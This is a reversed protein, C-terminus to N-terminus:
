EEAAIAFLKPEYGSGGCVFALTDKCTIECEDPLRRQSSEFIQRWTEGTPIRDDGCVFMVDPGPVFFSRGAFARVVTEGIEDEAVDVLMVRSMFARAGGSFLPKEHDRRVVLVFWDRKLELTKIM